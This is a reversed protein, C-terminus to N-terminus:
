GLFIIDDNMIFNNMMSESVFIDPRGSDDEVISPMSNGNLMIVDAFIRNSLSVIFLMALIIKLSKSSRMTKNKIQM